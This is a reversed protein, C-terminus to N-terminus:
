FFMVETNFFILLKITENRKRVGNAGIKNCAKKTQTYINYVYIKIIIKATLNIFYIFSLLIKNNFITKHFIDKLMVIYFFFLLLNTLLYYNHLFTNRHFLTLLYYSYIFQHFDFYIKNDLFYYYNYYYYYYFYM